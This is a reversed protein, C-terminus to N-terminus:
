PNFRERKGWNRIDLHVWSPTAWVNELRGPWRKDCFAWFEQTSMGVPPELDVGEWSNHASNQAAYIKVSRLYKTYATTRAGSAVTLAKGLPDRILEQIVKFLFVARDREEVTPIALVNWMRLHCYEWWMFNGNPVIPKTYDIPIRM